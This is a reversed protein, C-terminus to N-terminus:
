GYSSRRWNLFLGFANANVPLDANTRQTDDSGIACLEADHLEFCRESSGIDCSEIEDFDSRESSGGNDADHVESLELELLRLHCSLRPFLLVDNVQFLDLETRVDVFMVEHRFRPVRSTKELFPVLHLHRQHEPAPLDRMRLQPMLDHLADGLREGIDRFHFGRRFEFALLEGHNERRLSRLCIGFFFRCLPAELRKVRVPFPLTRRRFAFLLWMRVFFSAFRFRRRRRGAMTSVGPSAFNM